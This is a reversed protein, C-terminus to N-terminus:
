LRMVGEGTEKPTVAQPYVQYSKVLLYLVFTSLLGYTLLSVTLSVESVRTAAIILGVQTGMVLATKGARAFWSAYGQLLLGVLFSELIVGPYGFDAWATGIFAANWSSVYTTGRYLIPIFREPIDEDSIERGFVSNLLGSSGGWM